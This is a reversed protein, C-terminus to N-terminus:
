SVNEGGAELGPVGTGQYYRLFLTDLDPEAITLDAVETRDLWALLEGVPAQLQATWRQREVQLDGLCGPPPAAAAAASRWQIEVRRRAAERLSSIAEDAVLEGGRVIAVRDCLGEVESLVHSSFFVTTGQAARGRLCEYLQAQTIPDLATTPEDLVLLQPRHALALILGLKQQMGRSMQRVSVDLDLDFFEALRAGAALLRMGRARGHIKLATRPSMWDHLRLDGPLYGVLRKIQQSDRFADCGLVRASGSDARLFGLLLRITTTKGAGNPGIFGHVSGSEIRLHLDRIGVREGYSKSLGEILIAAM